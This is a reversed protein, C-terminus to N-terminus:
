EGLKEAVVIMQEPTPDWDFSIEVLRTEYCLLYQNLVSSSWHIQYAEVAGWLEADVPEYHDTFVEGDDFYEDQKADLLANKCLEYLFPTSFETVTYKLSPITRDETLPWQNYDTSNLLFTTNQQQERSWDVIPVDIMDEVDLPIEDDYVNMEWGGKDYTAVPDRGGPLGGRIIIVGMINMFAMSLIMAAGISVTRNVTRSVGKKRLHNRLMRASFGCFSM